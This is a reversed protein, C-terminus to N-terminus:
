LVLFPLVLKQLKEPADIVFMHTADSVIEFRSTEIWAALDRADDVTGFEDNEGIIVLTPVTIKDYDERELSLKKIWMPWAAQLLEYWPTQRHAWWLALSYVPHNLIYRWKRPPYRFDGTGFFAEQGRRFKESAGIYPHISILVQRKILDPQFVSIHLAILAGSSHGMVLPKQKLDLAEIFGIMDWALHGYSTFKGGPNNTKGHGRHDPSIVRFHKALAKYSASWNIKGTAWGGHFLILPPGSGMERYFIRLGNCEVYKEEIKM